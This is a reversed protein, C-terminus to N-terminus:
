LARGVSQLRQLMLNGVYGSNFDNEIRRRAQAGIRTRWDPDNAARRLLQEFAPISLNKAAVPYGVAQLAGFMRRGAEGVGSEAKLYGFVTAGADYTAKPDPRSSSSVDM